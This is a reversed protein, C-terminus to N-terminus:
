CCIYQYLDYSVTAFGPYYLEIKPIWPLPIHKVTIELENILRFM